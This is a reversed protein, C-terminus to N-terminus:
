LSLPGSGCISITGVPPTPLSLWFSHNSAPLKATPIPLSIM